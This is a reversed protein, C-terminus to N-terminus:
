EHTQEQGDEVNVKMKLEAVWRYFTGVAGRVMTDTDYRYFIDLSTFM